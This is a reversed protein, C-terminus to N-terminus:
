KDNTQEKSCEIVSKVRTVSRKTPNFSGQYFRTGSDLINGEKAYDLPLVQPFCQEGFKDKIHSWPNFSIRQLKNCIVVDCYGAPPVGLAGISVSLGIMLLITKKM